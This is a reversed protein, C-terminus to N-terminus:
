KDCVNEEENCKSDKTILSCGFVFTEQPEATQGALLSVLTDRGTNYGYHGRSATIGGNFLLQGDKDYLVVQGSTAARFHAAELGDEDSMVVVGPIREASQWLDTKEWDAPFGSPKYFLVYTTVKQQGAAMLLALEGLSARTCPCGPHALMVLTPRRTDREISSAVPWQIPPATAGSATNEYKWLYFFGVGIMLLWLLASVM